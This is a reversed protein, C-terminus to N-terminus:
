RKNSQKQVKVTGGKSCTWWILTEAQNMTCFLVRLDWVSYFYIQSRAFLFIIHIQLIRLFKPTFTSLSPGLHDGGSKLPPFDSIEKLRNKVTFHSISVTRHIETSNLHDVFFLNITLSFYLPLLSISHNIIKVKITLHFFYKYCTYSM